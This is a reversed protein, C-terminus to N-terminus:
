WLVGELGGGDSLELERWVTFEGVGDVGMVGGRLRDWGWAGGGGGGRKVWGVYQRYQVPAALLTAFWQWPQGEGLVRGVEHGV